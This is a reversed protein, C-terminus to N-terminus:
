IAAALIEIGKAIREEPISSYALRYHCVRDEKQLFFPGGPEILVGQPKLARALGMTNHRNEAKMWISSGGFAGRGAVTLGNHYIAKEMEMRRRYFAKSMRKILADYHGLSLFYAATRQIQGPPHRLVSARLKRAQKIFPAPGVM